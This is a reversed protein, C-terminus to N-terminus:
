TEIRDLPDTGGARRAMRYKPPPPSPVLLDTMTKASWFKGATSGDQSFLHRAMTLSSFPHKSSKTSKAMLIVLFEIVTGGPVTKTM